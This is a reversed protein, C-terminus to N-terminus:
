NCFVLINEDVHSLFLESAYLFSLVFLSQGIAHLFRSGSLIRVAYQCM